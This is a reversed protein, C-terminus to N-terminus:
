PPTIDKVLKENVSESLVSSKHRTHFRMQEVWVCKELASHVLLTKPRACIFFDLGVSLGFSTLPDILCTLLLAPIYVLMLGLGHRPGPPQTACAIDFVESGKAATVAYMMANFTQKDTIPQLSQSNLIRIIAGGHPRFYVLCGWGIVM